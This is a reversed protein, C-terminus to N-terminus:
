RSVLIATSDDLLTPYDINGIRGMRFLLWPGVEYRTTIAHTAARLMQSARLAGGLRQKLLRERTTM